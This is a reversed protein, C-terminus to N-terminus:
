QTRMGENTVNVMKARLDDLRAVIDWDDADEVPHSLAQELLKIARPYDQQGREFISLQDSLEVYGCARCPHESIVAQLTAEGEDHRGALFLLKGLSCRFNLVNNLDENVFIKLIDRTLRIGIDAYKRDDIAANELEMTFDQIWNNFSQTIDFVPDAADFTTMHPQIRSCVVNWVRLWIDMAKDNERANIRDYGESVWDDVMEISPREPCYRKWLECAALCIFDEDQAAPEQDLKTYWTQGISWASIREKALDMFATKDGDVGLKDLRAMIDATDLQAVKAITWKAKLKGICHKPLRALVKQSPHETMKVIAYPHLNTLTRHVDVGANTSTAAPKDQLCCKKYKKGSGCPCQDNRGPKTM